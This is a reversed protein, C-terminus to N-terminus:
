SESEALRNKIEERAIEEASNTFFWKDLTPTLRDIGEKLIEGFREIDIYFGEKSYRWLKDADKVIRDNLSIAEERSDHGDIIRLIEEIKDKDYNVKELIERAIKVGEVEHIRNLEPSEAKPGFVKLHLEEPVRKWGVDHLIISPIVTDEDGGERELLKFAFGTSIDTHTDNKRTDLYPEALRRIEKHSEKMNKNADNVIRHFFRVTLYEFIDQYSTIYILLYHIFM